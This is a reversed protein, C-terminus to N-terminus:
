NNIECCLPPAAGRGVNTLSEKENQQKVENRKMKVENGNRKMKSNSKMTELIHAEKSRFQRRFKKASSPASTNGPNHPRQWCGGNFGKM